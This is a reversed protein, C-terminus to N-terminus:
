KLSAQLDQLLRPVYPAYRPDPVKGKTPLTRLAAAVPAARPGLADLANLAAMVVFVDNKGWDSLALLTELARKRNDDDYQGLAQAAVIRVYPSRDDLAARLEATAADVGKRGRMLIGLAAWYRVASDSDSLGQKLEPLVEPRLMSALEAMAFIREFPYKSDDRGLAYPSAGPARSFLEGEPLFGVDRIRRALDQQVQRLRKLIEQHAPSDALNNVEDPDNRLDYLEEPPKPNWFRDQVANLKGEDHLRKWVRTTPTQFMYDLYQGYILHPLYNRVYVYRGDTVSRVLDYREDMRGRFGFIFPQPPAAFKGLFAHGQMWEPPRIGALSLVTPGFDVFSVLRDSKGGPTYDKTALHRWKDPIYVVLPVQLGSNYPWRKCRPMGSGHDAFYFVITDEALGAEELERLRRGADADAESVKDYYQAWDQRVEPTDPHYAPVRVKAPDHVPQHPRTRIQSEHSKTSNFVAFFPQGPKRNKWHAKASSEDWVQGPKALNYDEKVNNTCYYGAERLLQPFMKMGEPYPVLSRMHESGTATPYMGSILATRAPACVPANSWARIYIVGRAALRDVNPTSAYSDGYCGLHPGHDESTLWLINPRPADARVGPALLLATVVASCALIRNPM